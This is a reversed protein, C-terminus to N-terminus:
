FLTLQAGPTEPARQPQVNCKIERGEYPGFFSPRGGGFYTMRHPVPVIGPIALDEMYPNVLWSGFVKLTITNMWIVEGRAGHICMNLLAMNVAMRDLDSGVYYCRDERFRAHHAMLLRGSGCAPDNVIGRPKSGTISASMDCVHAPTFFQGMNSAKWNSLIEEYFIGLADYWEGPEIVKITMMRVWEAFMGGMSQLERADYRRITENYETEMLGGALACVGTQLFDAFVTGTDHRNTVDQFLRFFDRCEIPFDRAKM